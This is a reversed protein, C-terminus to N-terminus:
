KVAKVWRVKGADYIRFLGNALAAERETMGEEFILNEDDRFRKKQYKEKPERTWNNLNGVYKYDPKLVKDKVFGAKEYLGGDSVDNAAFSVWQTLGEPKLTEEAYKMLKTFGGPIIGCTAYRQIEWVGDGRHMRANNHPSRVGLLARIDGDDDILAFARTCTVAGQIHNENLFESVVHGRVEGLHLKRAGVREWCKPNLDPLVLSLREAAHLKYAIERVVIDQRSRWDDEWVFLLRYGESEAACMKDYHSNRSKDKLESHWLCGNFEIAIHREPVVIDLENGHLVKRDNTLVVDDGVLIKVVDALAMEEHSRFLTGNRKKTEYAKAQVEPSQMSNPVGWHELNTARTRAKIEEAQSPYETGWHALSTAKCKDAFDPLHSPSEVGYKELMAAKFRNQGEETQMIHNAGYRKRFTEQRKAKVEENQMPSDVGYHERIAELRKARLEPSQMLHKAGYRELRTKEAKEISKKSHMPHDVGYRAQMTKKFREQRHTTDRTQATKLVACKKCGNGQLHSNARQQFPGHEPCIITVKNASGTFVAQSYDYKDGHVAHAKAIFEEQTMKHKSM